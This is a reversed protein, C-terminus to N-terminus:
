GYDLLCSHIHRNYYTHESNRREKEKALKISKLRLIWLRNLTANLPTGPSSMKMMAARRTMQFFLFNLGNVVFYRVVTFVVSEPKWTLSITHKNCWTDAIREKLTPGDGGCFSQTLGLSNLAFQLYILLNASRHTVRQLLSVLKHLWLPYPSICQFRFVM